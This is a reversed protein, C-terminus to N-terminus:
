SEPSPDPARKEPTAFGVRRAPKNPDAKKMAMLLFSIQTVHQILTVKQGEGTVGHFVILSPNHYGLEQVHFSVTQGFSVLRIGVEEDQNLSDEFDKIWFGLREYFESAQNAEALEVLPSRPIHIDQARFGALPNGALSRLLEQAHDM